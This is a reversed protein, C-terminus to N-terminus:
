FAADKTGFSAVFTKPHNSTFFSSRIKSIPHPPLNSAFIRVKMHYSEEFPSSHRVLRLVEPLILFELSISSKVLSSKTECSTFSKLHFDLLLRIQFKM